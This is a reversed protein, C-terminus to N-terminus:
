RHGGGMGGRRGPEADPPERGSRSQIDFAQWAPPRAGAMTRAGKLSLAEAFGQAEPVWQKVASPAAVVIRMACRYRV